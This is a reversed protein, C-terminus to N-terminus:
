QLPNGRVARRYERFTIQADGNRDALKLLERGAALFEARSVTGNRNKDMQLFRREGGKGRLIVVEAATLRGNKDADLRAFATRRAADLERKTIAGDNDSDIQAFAARAATSRSSGRDLGPPPLGQDSDATRRPAPRAPGRRLEAKTLRNDRNRDIRRFLRRGFALYEARSVTGDGNKDMAEYRRARRGRQLIDKDRRVFEGRSLRRNDNSDLKSFDARRATDFEKLSIVGDRNSDIRIVQSPRQAAAPSLHSVLPLLLLACYLVRM